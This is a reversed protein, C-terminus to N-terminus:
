VGSIVDVDGASAAGPPHSTSRGHGRAHGSDCGNDECRVFPECAGRHRPLGACTPKTVVTGTSAVLQDRVQFHSRSVRTAAKRFSPPASRPPQWPRLNDLPTPTKATHGPTHESHASQHRLCRAPHRRASQRSRTPSPPGPRRRRPTPRILRTGEPQHHARLPGMPRHRPPPADSRQLGGSGLGRRRPRPGPGRGESGHAVEGEVRPSTLLPINAAALSISGLSRPGGPM